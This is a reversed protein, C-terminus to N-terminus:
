KTLLTPPCQMSTSCSTLLGILLYALITTFRSSQRGLTTLINALPIENLLEAAEGKLSSRLHHMKYINPLNSRKLVIESFTDRFRVWEHIDGSFSPLVITLLKAQNFEYSEANLTPQADATTSPQNAKLSYLYDQFLGLNILYADEVQSFVDTTFYNDASDVNEDDLLDAHNNEYKTWLDKLRQKHTTWALWRWRLRVSSKSTIMLTLWNLAVPCNGNLPPWRLM